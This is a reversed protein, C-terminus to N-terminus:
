ARREIAILDNRAKDTARILEDLKKNIATTDRDQSSQLLVLLLLSVYSMFNSGIFQYTTDSFGTWFGTAIWVALLLWLGAFVPWTGVWCSMRRAFADFWSM